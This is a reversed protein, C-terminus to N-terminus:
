KLLSLTRTQVQDGVRLRVVYVGSPLGGAEWVVEHQGAGYVGDAVVAVRQGLANYITLRVARSVPLRFGLRTSPNFPNPYNQLLEVRDPVEFIEDVSTSVADSLMVLEFRSSTEGASQARVRPGAGLKSASATTPDSEFVYQDSQRLDVITGTVRDRLEVRWSDPVDVMEPWRLTFAGSLGAISVALEYVEAEVSNLSRADQVLLQQDDYPAVFALTAYEGLLPVLKQGDYGDRGAHATAHFYLQASRDLAGSGQPGELEFAIRRFAPDNVPVALSDDTPRQFVEITSATSSRAALPITAQTADASQLMFGQWPAIVHNEGLNFTLFSGSASAPDRWDPTGTGDDWVQIPSVLGSGTGGSGNGTMQDLAIAQAFPNGLLTFGGDAVSATVDATPPLGDADLTIPLESSGAQTNDYVYLIFGLGPTLTTALSAPATWAGTSPRTFLNPPSGDNDGGSIGQLATDDALQAPTFGSAPAALMRWGADGAITVTPLAQEFLVIRGDTAPGPDRNAAGATVVDLDSDGDADVALGYRPGPFARTDTRTFTGNGDNAYFVILNADRATGVLDLDGDGDLDAATLGTAGTIDDALTQALTFGGNGDNRLWVHHNSYALALDVNGDGDLDATDVGRGFALGGVGVQDVGAPYIPAQFGGSADALCVAVVSGDAFPSALAADLRGDDNFDAVAYSEAGRDTGCTGGATFGGAGDGVLVRQSTGAGFIQVSALVDLTGDGNFDALGIERGTIIPAGLDAPIAAVADRLSSRPAVTGGGTNELWVGNALLIDTAGDGNLDAFYPRNSATASATGDYRVAPQDAFGSATGLFVAVAGLNNSTLSQVVLDSRGDGDFDGLNFLFPDNLAASVVAEEAFTGPGASHAASFQWSYPTLATGDSRQIGSSATVTMVEGPLFDSAPDFLLSNTAPFTFTGAREGTQSGRVTFTASSVTSQDLDCDFTAAVNSSGAVGSATPAPMTAPPASRLTRFSAFADFFERGSTAASLSAVEVIGLRAREVRVGDNDVSTDNAAATDNLYLHVQGNNAGAATAARFEVELLNPANLLDFFSTSLLTGADDQYEMKIQYTAGNLRLTLAVARQGSGSIAEFLRHTEGAQLVVDNPDFQFRARYTTEASPTTDQLYAVGSNGVTAQLGFAGSMAANANVELSSFDAFQAAGSKSAAEPVASSWASTNGSEFGDAFITCTLLRTVNWPSASPVLVAGTLLVLAALYIFLLRHLRSPTRRTTKM